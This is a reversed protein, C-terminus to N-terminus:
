KGQSFILGGGKIKFCRVFMLKVKCIEGAAGGLNRSGEDCCKGSSSAMGINESRM